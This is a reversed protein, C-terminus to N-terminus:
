RDLAMPLVDVADIARRGLVLLPGRGITRQRLPRVLSILFTPPFVATIKVVPELRLALEQVVLLLDTSERTGDRRGDHEGDCRGGDGERREPAMEIDGNKKPGTPL